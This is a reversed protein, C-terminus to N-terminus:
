LSVGYRDHVIGGLVGVNLGVNAISAIQNLEQQTLGLKQKLDESYLGYSYAAGALFELAFGALLCCRNVM